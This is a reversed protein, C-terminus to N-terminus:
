PGRWVRLHYETVVAQLRGIYESVLHFYIQLGRTWHNVTPCMAMSKADISLNHGM